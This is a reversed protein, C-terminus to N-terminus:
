SIRSTDFVSFEYPNLHKQISQTDRYIYFGDFLKKLYAYKRYLTTSRQTLHKFFDHHNLYLNACEAFDEFPTQQGYGSCFDNRTQGMRRTKENM